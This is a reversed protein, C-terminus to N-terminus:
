EPFVLAHQIVARAHDGPEFRVSANTQVRLLDEGIRVRYEIVNGLFIRVDVECDAGHEAGLLIDEPRIALTCSGTKPTSGQINVEVGGRLRVLAGQQTVNIVTGPVFNMTGIFDAVFKDVPNAYIDHPAGEQVVAGANMVAVRDSMAMAEVQDHTVYLISIGTKRQLDKLEFRMQERLKADLNSLPEDLLMVKPDTSLARGLAVRQQQGGSLESPYRTELGRLELLDMLYAMKANVQERPKKAVRLPYSMNQEVTMHPWVAYNQFVMGIGRREPPVMVNRGPSTVLQGSIYIEGETPQELGSICRLTTTKGCGSPGLLSFFENEHVTFSVDHVATFTGFRKALNSVRIREEVLVV